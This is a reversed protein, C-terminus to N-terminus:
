ASFRFLIVDGDEVVYKKGEIRMLGKNKAGKWDGIKILDNFHVVEASIFGKEFDSHIKGAASQANTGKQVAWARIETDNFTFFSILGLVSYGRRIVRDLGSAHIGLEEFYEKREDESIMVLDNELKASIQVIDKGVHDKKGSMVENESVNYIYIVPKFTLLNAERAYVKEDETLDTKVALNGENLVRSLKEYVRLKRYSEKDGRKANNQEVEIRRDLYALDSLLLETNVIGKDGDPSVSGERAVNEDEFDRLVHVLADVERVHSLFQNGLGQGKHAGKVLGAIDVFKIITPKREFRPNEKSLIEYLRDLREDPVPVIGVNPEITTFPYSAIVATQKKLLVNFLTSKGVNPLGIIGLSLM